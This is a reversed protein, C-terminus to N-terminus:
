FGMCDLGLRRLGEGGLIGIFGKEIEGAVFIYNREGRRGLGWWEMEVAGFNGEWFEWIFIRIWPTLYRCGM